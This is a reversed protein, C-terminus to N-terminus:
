IWGCHFAQSFLDTRRASALWDQILYIPVLREEEDTASLPLLFVCSPLLLNHENYGVPLHQDGNMPLKNKAQKSLTRRHPRKNSKKVCTQSQSKFNNLAHTSQSHPTYSSSTSLKSIICNKRQDWFFYWFLFPVEWYRENGGPVKDFYSLYMRIGGPIGVVRVCRDLHFSFNQLPQFFDSSEM